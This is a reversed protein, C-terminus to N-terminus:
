VSGIATLDIVIDFGDFFILRFIGVSSSSLNIVAAASDSGSARGSVSSCILAITGM